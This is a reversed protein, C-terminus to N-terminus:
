GSRDEGAGTATQQPIGQCRSAALCLVQLLIRGMSNVLVLCRRPEAHAAAGAVCLAVLCARFAVAVRQSSSGCLVLLAAPPRAEVVDTFPLKRPAALDRNQLLFSLFYTKGQVLQYVPGPAKGGSAAGGAAVALPCLQRCGMRGPVDLWLQLALVLDQGVVLQHAAACRRRSATARESASQAPMSTPSLEPTLKAMNRQIYQALDKQVPLRRNTGSGKQGEEEIIVLQLAAASNQQDM